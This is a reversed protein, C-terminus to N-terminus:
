PKGTKGLALEVEEAVKKKKKKKMEKLKQFNFTPHNSEDCTEKEQAVSNKNRM